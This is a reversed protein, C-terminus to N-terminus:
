RRSLIFILAALPVVVLFPTIPLKQRPAQRPAKVVIGKAATIPEYYHDEFSRPNYDAYFRPLYYPYFSPYVGFARFPHIDSM